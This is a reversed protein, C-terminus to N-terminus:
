QCIASNNRSFRKEILMRNRERSRFMSSWGLPTQDYQTHTDEPILCSWSEIRPDSRSVSFTHGHESSSWRCPSDPIGAGDMSGCSNASANTSLELIRLYRRVVSIHRNPHLWCSVAVTHTYFSWSQSNCSRLYLHVVYIQRNPHLWWSVAIKYRKINYVRKKGSDQHPRSGHYM